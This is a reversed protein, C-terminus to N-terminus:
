PVPTPKATDSRKAGRSKEEAERLHRRIIQVIRGKQRMPQYDKPYTAWFANDKFELIWVGETGKKYNLDTSVMIKSNAAPMSLPVTQGTKIEYDKLENKLVEWVRIHATDLRSEPQEAPTIKEIKGVLIVPNDAVLKALPIDSWMATAPRLSCLALLMAVFIGEIRKM